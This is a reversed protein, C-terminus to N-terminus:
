NDNREEEERGDMCDMGGNDHRGCGSLPLSPSLYIALYCPSITFCVSGKEAAKEKLEQEHREREEEERKERLEKEKQSEKMLQEEKTLITDWEQTSACVCLRM